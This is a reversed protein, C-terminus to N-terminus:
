PSHDRSSVENLPRSAPYEEMSCPTFPPMDKLIKGLKEIIVDDDIEESPMRSPDIAGTYEYDLHDRAM